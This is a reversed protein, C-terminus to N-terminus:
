QILWMFLAFNILTFCVITYWLFRKVTNTNENENAKGLERFAFCAGAFTCVYILLAVWRINWFM